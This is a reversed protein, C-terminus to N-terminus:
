HSFQLEEGAIDVPHLCQMSLSSKSISKGEGYIALTPMAIKIPNKGNSSKTENSSEASSAYGTKLNRIEARYSYLESHGDHHLTGATTVSFEYDGLTAVVFHGGPLINNETLTVKKAPVSLQDPVEPFSIASIFCTLTFPRMLDNNSFQKKTEAQVAQSFLFIVVFMYTKM